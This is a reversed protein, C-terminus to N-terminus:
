GTPLSEQPTCIMRLHAADDDSGLGVQMQADMETTISLLDQVLTDCQVAFKRLVRKAQRLRGMSKKQWATAAGGCRM